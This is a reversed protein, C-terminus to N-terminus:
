PKFLFLDADTKILQANTGYTANTSGVMIVGNDGTTRIRSVSGRITRFVDMGYETDGNSKVAIANIQNSGEVIREGLVLLNGNSQITVAKGKISGISSTQWETVLATSLKYLQTGSATNALVFLDDGILLADALTEGTTELNNFNVSIGSGKAATVISITNETGNNGVYVIQEDKLFVRKFASSSNQFYYREWVLEGDLTLKATYYDSFTNGPQVSHGAVFIHTDDLAIDAIEIGINQDGFHRYWLSDGNADVKLIFSRSFGSSDAVGVVLLEDLMERVVRGEENYGVQGYNKLWIQNGKRDSKVLLIQKDNNSQIDYGTLIYNGATTEVVDIGSSEYGSGFLKVFNESQFDSITTECSFLASTFIFIFLSRKM